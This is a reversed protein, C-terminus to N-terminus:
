PRTHTWRRQAPYCWWASLRSNLIVLLLLNRRGSAGGKVQHISQSEELGTRRVKSPAARDDPDFGRIIRANKAEMANSQGARSRWTVVRCEMPTRSMGVALSDTTSLIIAAHHICRSRASEDQDIPIAIPDLFRYNCGVSGPEARAGRQLHWVLAHSAM